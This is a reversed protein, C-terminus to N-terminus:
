ARAGIQGLVGGQESMAGPAIGGEGERLWSGAAPHQCAWFSVGPTYCLGAPSQTCGRLAYKGKARPHTSPLHQPLSQPHGGGLVQTRHERM